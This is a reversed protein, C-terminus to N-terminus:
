MLRILIRMKKLQTNKIDLSQSHRLFIRKCNSLSQVM